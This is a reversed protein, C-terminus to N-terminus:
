PSSPVPLGARRAAIAARDRYATARELSQRAREMEREAEDRARPSKEASAALRENAARARLECQRLYSEASAWHRWHISQSFQGPDGAPSTSERAQPGESPAESRGELDDATYVRTGSAAIAQRRERERRAAERRAAEDLGQAPLRLPLSALLSLVLVM